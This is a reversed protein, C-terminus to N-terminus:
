PAVRGNREFAAHAIPMLEAWAAEMKEAVMEIERQPYSPFRADERRVRLSLFNMLSRANVTVYASSYITLPLVIRAVERAIGADLMRRYSAYAEACQRRVEEEVLKHQDPTGDVFQYHGPKGEQVLKRDPGPVYFVPRLERYRGSEENYSAMRHRMLERFVFIPAQVYFTMSNHEFPSNGCWVPKGNRRVYLTSNPVTACYIQGRYHEVRVQQRRAEHTWGVTPELDRDRYLTVQYRPRRGGPAPADSREAIAAALGIKLAVEQLQGALTRSTTVYTQGHSAAKGSYALGELLEQLHQPACELMEPPIAKARDADYCKKALLRFEEDAVLHYRDDGVQRVEYGAEAARRRLFDIERRTHLRFFPTQTEPELDGSGVFLGLLAAVGAAPVFPDRPSWITGGVTLRHGADLLERAPVLQWWEGHAHRCPKAWMQHDPTVLLDVQATEIRVMPGDYPKAILREARQYELDGDPSLTAFWEDGRVDAWRKWGERTLVETQADYCGHRSRMLYNILGKSREPDAEVDELSQEGKTSVRAAFLIDADRAAARVLEVTVDSRFEIEESHPM